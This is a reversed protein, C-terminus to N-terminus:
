IPSPCMSKPFCQKGKYGACCGGWSAYGGKKGERPEVRACIDAKNERYCCGQYDPLPRAGSIQEPTMAILGVENYPLWCPVPVPPPKAVVPPPKAVPPPKVVPPPKAVPKVPPPLPPLVMPSVRGYAADKARQACSTRANNPIDDFCKAAVSTGAGFAKCCAGKDKYGGVL